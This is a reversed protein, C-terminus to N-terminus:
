GAENSERVIRRNTTNKIAEGLNPETLQDAAMPRSEFDEAMMLLRLKSAERDVTVAMGRFRTAEERLFRPTM